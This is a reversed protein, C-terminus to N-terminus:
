QFFFENQRYEAMGEAYFTEIGIPNLDKEM